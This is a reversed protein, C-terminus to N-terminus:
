ALVAANLEGALREAAERERRMAVDRRIAEACSRHVVEGVVTLVLPADAPAAPIPPATAVFTTLDDPTIPHGCLGCTTVTAPTM